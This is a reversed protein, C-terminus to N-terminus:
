QRELITQSIITQYVQYRGPIKRETVACTHMVLRGATDLGVQSVAGGSKALGYTLLYRQNVLEYNSNHAKGAKGSGANIETLRLKRDTLLLTYPNASPQMTASRYIRKEAFSVSDIHTVRRTVVARWNGQLQTANRIVTATDLQAHPNASPQCFWTHVGERQFGMGMQTKRLEPTLWREYRGFDADWQEFSPRPLATCYGVPFATTDTSATQAQVAITIM